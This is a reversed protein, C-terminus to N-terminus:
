KGRKKIKCDPCLGVFTIEHGEIDFGNKDAIQEELGAFYPMNVDFVGGCEKCRIHYHKETRLDFRDAGDPLHVHSLMGEEALKNLNRYVTAKSISPHERVVAQYVDEAAPHHMKKMQELIIQKQLTNRTNM